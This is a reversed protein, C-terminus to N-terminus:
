CSAPSRRRAMSATRTSGPRISPSTLTRVGLFEVAGIDNLTEMLALTVGIIIAPRGDAAAGPLFRPRRTAWRARWRPANRGQMLFAARATLYVYPYLVFSLIVVAGWLSRIDPFWYDRSTKFGFLARILSQAPGTFTFFEAYAYAALYTPVALPLVLAWTLIRRGPFYMIPPSGPPSSAWAPPSPGVGVMVFATTKFAVPLVNRALHPWDAGGGSLSLAILALLPFSSPSAGCCRAPAPLRHEKFRSFPARAGKPITDATVQPWSLLGAGRRLRGQRRAREGAQPAPSRTSRSRTPRSLRGLGQRASPRPVDPKVPYENNQEAYMEQGKDSALFELAERM